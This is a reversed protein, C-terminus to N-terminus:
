PIWSSIKTMWIHFWKDKITVTAVFQCSNNFHVANLLEWRHGDNHPLGSISLLDERTINNVTINSSGCQTAYSDLVGMTEASPPYLTSGVALWMSVLFGVFIGVFAGQHRILCVILCNWPPNILPQHWKFILNNFSCAFHAFSYGRQWHTNMKIMCYFHYKNFYMEFFLTLSDLFCFLGSLSHM